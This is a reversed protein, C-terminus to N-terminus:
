FPGTERIKLISDGPFVGHTSIAGIKKAGFDLYAQAANILSGGTRIMDDYISSRSVLLMPMLRLSMHKKM